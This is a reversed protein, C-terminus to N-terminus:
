EDELLALGGDKGYAPAPNIRLQARLGASRLVDEARNQEESSFSGM